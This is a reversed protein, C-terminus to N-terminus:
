VSEIAATNKQELTQLNLNNLIEQTTKYGLDFIEQIHELDFVSYKGTNGPEIFVDSMKRDIKTNSALGLHFSREAMHLMNTVKQSSDIANIGVSIIKECKDRIPRVPLNMFMGGDVYMGGNIKVPNFMIPISASAIVPPLLEGSDFHVAIGENIESATVVLPIKLDEFNNVGLFAKLREEMGSMVMLGLKSVIPRAFSLLKKDLFFALCEDPTKGAALMAGVIAGASTGSIIDPIINHEYMAKAAGLHAFGRAGGGSLVLGLKYRNTNQSRM